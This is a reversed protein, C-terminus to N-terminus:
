LRALSEPDICDLEGPTYTMPKAPPPTWPGRQQQNPQLKGWSRANGHATVAARKWDKIPGAKTKWGVSEYYAWQESACIPHWDPYTASCYEVWEQETPRASSTRKRKGEKEAEKEAEAETSSQEVVNRRINSSDGWIIELGEIESAQPRDVRQHDLFNCIHGYSKGSDSKGITLFGISSLEDLGRRVNTSDEEFPFLEGRIVLYNCVFYGSDDAFNLLAIAM